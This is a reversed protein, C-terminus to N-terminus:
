KFEDLTKHIGLEKEKELSSLRTWRCRNYHSCRDCKITLFKRPCWNPKRKIKPM